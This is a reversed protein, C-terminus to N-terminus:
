RMSKELNSSEKSILEDLHYLHPNYEKLEDKNPMVLPIEYRIPEIMIEQNFNSIYLRM